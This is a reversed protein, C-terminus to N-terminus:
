ADPAVARGTEPSIEGSCLGERELADAIRPIAALTNPPWDHLLVVEGDTLGAVAQVIQDVTAGNWDMSDVDWLVETLGRAEAVARLTEDTEGYPPRFLEPVGGGADAIAKQARSIEDDMESETLETMHPHGYSHNGVWMGAEVQSAVLQPTAAANGGLNFMTARLGNERLASVLEATTDGPGDDFSLGVHGACEAGAAPVVPGTVAAVAFVAVVACVRAGARGSRNM